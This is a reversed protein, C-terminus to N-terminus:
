YARHCEKNTLLSLPENALRNATEYENNRLQTGLLNVALTMFANVTRRKNEDKNILIKSMQANGNENIKNQGQLNISFILTSSRRLQLSPLGDKFCKRLCHTHLFQPLSGM